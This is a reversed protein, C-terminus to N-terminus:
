EGDSGDSSDYALLSALGNQTSGKTDSITSLPVPPTCEASALTKQQMPENQPDNQPDNQKSAASLQDAQKTQAGQPPKPGRKVRKATIKGSITLPELVARPRKESVPAPESGEKRSKELESLDVRQAQAAKAQLQTLHDLMQQEQQQQILKEELSDMASKTSDKQLWFPNHKRKQDQELLRQEEQDAKELRQLIEDETEMPKIAQKSALSEYNRVAGSVPAFGATKPDTQFVLTGNCRPCKIHFRIIKIGMYKEATTEKRANFKRREAIYELCLLCKMSFPLMLRVKDANPNKKKKKPAQSPDYDPPYYKNIAKRESM